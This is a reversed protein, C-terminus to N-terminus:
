FPFSMPSRCTQFLLFNFQKPHSHFMTKLQMSLFQWLTKRLLSNIFINSKCSVYCSFLYIPNKKYGEHWKNKTTTCVTRLKGNMHGHM